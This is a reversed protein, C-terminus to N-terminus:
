IHILSLDLREDDTLEEFDAKHARPLVLLHGNTYPFRNLMVVSQDTQWLVLRKRREEDTAAAAAGCLFCEEGPPKDKDPKSLSRIYDMRWPAYLVAPTPPVSEQPGQGQPASQGQPQSQMAAHYPPAPRKPIARPHASGPFPRREDARIYEVLLSACRTSRGFVM